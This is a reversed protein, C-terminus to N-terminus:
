VAQPISIIGETNYYSQRIEKTKQQYDRVRQAHKEKNRPNQLYKKHRETSTMPQKVGDCYDIIRQKNQQFFEEDSVSSTYNEYIYEKIANVYKIHKKGKNHISINCKLFTSGCVCEIIETKRSSTM